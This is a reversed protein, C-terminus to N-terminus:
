EEKGCFHEYDQYVFHHCIEHNITNNIQEETKNDLWVCYYKDQYYIGWLGFDSQELVSGCMAYQEIAGAVIEKKMEPICTDYLEEYEKYFKVYDLIMIISVVALVILCVLQIKQEKEM